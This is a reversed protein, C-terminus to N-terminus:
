FVSSYVSSATSVGDTTNCYHLKALSCQRKTLRAREQPQAPRVWRRRRGIRCWPLRLAFMSFLVCLFRTLATGMKRLGLECTVAFSSRAGLGYVRHAAASLAEHPGTQAQRVEERERNREETTGRGSISGKPWVALASSLPWICGAQPCEGTVREGHSTGSVRYTDNNRHVARM